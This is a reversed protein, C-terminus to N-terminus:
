GVDSRSERKDRRSELKTQAHWGGADGGGVVRHKAPDPTSDHAHARACVVRHTGDRAPKNEAPSVCFVVQLSHCTHRISICM